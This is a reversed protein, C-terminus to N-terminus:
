SKSSWLGHVNCLARAKIWGTVGCFEAQPLDEPRLRKELVVGENSILQILEIYHDADMPHTVSGVKVLVGKETEEIVPTHKENAEDSREEFEVMPEGCCVLQGGKADIVSVVNGCIECKYIGNKNAM